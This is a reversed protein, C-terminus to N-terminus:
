KSNKMFNAAVFGAVVTWVIVIGAVKLWSLLEIQMLENIM